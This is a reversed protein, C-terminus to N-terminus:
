SIRFRCISFFEFTLGKSFRQDRISGATQWAFGNGLHVQLGLPQQSLLGQCLEHPEVNIQVFHELVVRHLLPWLDLPFIIENDVSTIVQCSLFPLELDPLVFLFISKLRFLNSGKLQWLRSLALFRFHYERHLLNEM